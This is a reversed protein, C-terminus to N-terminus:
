TSALKEADVPENERNIEKIREKVKSRPANVLRTYADEECNHVFGLGEIWEENQDRAAESALGKLWKVNLKLEEKLTRTVKHTSPLSLGRMFCIEELVVMFQSMKMRFAPSRICLKTAVEEIVDMPATFQEHVRIRDSLDAQHSFGDNKMLRELGALAWNLVGSLMAPTSLKEERSHDAAKTGDGIGFQHPFLVFMFRDFYADTNDESRPVENAMFIHKLYLRTKFPSMFKAEIRVWDDGTAEKFGKSEIIKAKPMESVSNLLRQYMEHTSFRESMVQPAVGCTLHGGIMNTVVNVFVTKGDRGPGVLCLAKHFKQKKYLIFGVYEQLVDIDEAPNETSERLHDLFPESGAAPNYAAALASLPPAEGEQYPEFRLKGGRLHDLFLVGNSVPLVYPDNGMDDVTKYQLSEITDKILRPEVQYGMGEAMEQLMGKVKMHAIPRYAGNEWLYMEGTVATAITLLSLFTDRLLYMLNKRREAGKGMAEPIEYGQRRLEAFIAKYHGKLCEPGAEGCEILGMMVALLELPGGGEGKEQCRFCHFVNKKVNISFNHGSSSGHLPHSGIIEGTTARNDKEIPNPMGIDEVRIKDVWAWDGTLAPKAAKKEKTKKKTAKTPTKEKDVPFEIKKDYRVKGEFVALIQELSVEAIPEVTEEKWLQFRVTDPEIVRFRSTPGVCQQGLWQMEGLHRYVTLEKGGAGIVKETQVLDYMIRKKDFDRCIYYYHLGGSRTRVIYTPPLKKLIGLEKMREVNDIDIILLGGHGTAIGYNGGKSMWSLLSGSDYAYNATTNWSVEFATKEYSKLKIFRFEIRQLTKPIAILPCLKLEEDTLTAILKADM